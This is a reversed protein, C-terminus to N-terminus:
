GSHGRTIEAGSRELETFAVTGTITIARHETRREPETVSERSDLVHRGVDLLRRTRQSRRRPHARVESTRHARTRSDSDIVPHHDRAFTIPDPRGDTDDVSRGLRA